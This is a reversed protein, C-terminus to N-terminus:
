HKDTENKELKVKRKKFKAFITQNDKLTRGIEITILDRKILEEFAEKLNQESLNKESNKLEEFLNEINIKKRLIIESLMKKELITLKKLM